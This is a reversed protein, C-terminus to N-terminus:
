LPPLRDKNSRTIIEGLKRRIFEYGKITMFRLIGVFGGFVASANRWFRNCIM